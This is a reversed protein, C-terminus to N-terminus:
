SLLHVSDGLSSRRQRRCSVVGDAQWADVWFCLGFPDSFNVADGGGFGYLNNGGALGIPDEQTFRGASPDFYRNRRYLYGSADEQGEILSGYWSPAPANAVSNAAGFLNRQPFKIQASTCIATGCLGGDFHGRWDAFPIVSMWNGKDIALPEDIGYGHVYGVVGYDVGSPGDNELTLPSANPGGDTRIEYLLQNGDWVTRTLTNHCGTWKQPSGSAVFQLECGQDVAGLDTARACRVSLARDGRVAVARCGRERRQVRDDDSVAHRLPTHALDAQQPRRVHGTDGHAADPVHVAYREVVHVAWARCVQAHSVSQGALRHRVGDHRGDRSRRLDDSVAPSRKWARLEVVDIGSAGTEHREATCQRLRRVSDDGGHKWPCEEHNSRACRVHVHRRSRRSRLPRLVKVVKDRSDYSLNDDHVVTNDAMRLTRRALRSDADYSRTETLPANGARWVQQDLRGADDYHYTFSQGLKDTVSTLLGSVPDYGYATRATTGNALQSPHDLGIKHGALDYTYTLGYQHFSFDTSWDAKAIRLTDTKLAGNPYYSRSIQAASNNATRMGLADYTYTALNTGSRSTLRNLVDYSLTAGIADRGGTILNGAADYTFHLVEEEVNAAGHVLRESVKRDAEDYVFRRTVTGVGGADPTGRQSVERSIGKRTTASEHDLLSDAGNWQLSVSDGGAANYVFRQLLKLSETQSPDTPTKTLTDRGIADKWSETVIGSPSTLRWTNGLGDYDIRNVETPANGPTTVTQM